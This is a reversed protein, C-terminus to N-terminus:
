ISDWFDADLEKIELTYKTHLGFSFDYIYNALQEGNILVINTSGNLSQVYEVAGKSFTSTTIFIGKNSQAVALAGVFKQVEERGVTTTRAYRKAQIHIRGLGLIDEKIIGDIGGDNSAQTVEGANKIQGGYGMKELLRVVIHEFDTPSKSLITDLIQDYRSELISQFATNLQEDPTQNNAADTTTEASNKELRQTRARQSMHAKVHAKIAPEDGVLSKGLKTADYIARKPRYALGSKTLYSLAWQIRDAFVNGNGSPYEQAKEGETLNFRKALPPHLDRGRQEGQEALFQLAKPIIEDYKPIPM